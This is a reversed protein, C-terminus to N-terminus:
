TMIKNDFAFEPYTWSFKFWFSVTIDMVDNLESKPVRYDFNKNKNKWNSYIPRTDVKGEVM